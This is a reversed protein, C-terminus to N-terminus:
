LLEWSAGEATSDGHRLRTHVVLAPPPPPSRICSQCQFSLIFPLVGLRPSAAPPPMSGGCCGPEHIRCWPISWWTTSM